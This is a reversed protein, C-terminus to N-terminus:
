RIPALAAPAAASAASSEVRTWREGVSAASAAGRRSGFSRFVTVRFVVRTRRTRQYRRHVDFQVRYTGSPSDPRLLRRRASVTACPGRLRGIRIDRKYRRGRRVHAYLTRGGIFGRAGIRRRGSPSGSRPRVTVDLATVRVQTFARIETNAEDVAAFNHVGSGRSRAPAPIGVAFAGAPNAQTSGLVAGDRGVFVRGSPTFGFGFLGMQQGSAYCSRAFGIGAASAGPAAVLAALALPILMRAKM